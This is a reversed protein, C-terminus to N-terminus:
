HKANTTERGGSVTLVNNPMFVSVVEGVTMGRPSSGPPIRLTITNDDCDAGTLVADVQSAQMARPADDPDGEMPEIPTMCGGDGGCEECDTGCKRRVAPVCTRTCNYCPMLDPAECGCSDNCLGTAGVSKLHKWVIDQVDM